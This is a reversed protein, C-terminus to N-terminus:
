RSAVKRAIRCLPVGLANTIKQATDERCRKGNCIASLNCRSVSAREALEGMTIGANHVERKLNGGDIYM